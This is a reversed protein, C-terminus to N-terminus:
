TRDERAARPLKVGIKDEDEVDDFTPEVRDQVQRKLWNTLPEYKDMPSRRGRITLCAVQGAAGGSVTVKANASASKM